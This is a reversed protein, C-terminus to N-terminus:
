LEIVKSYESDKLDIAVSEFITFLDKYKIYGVTSMHVGWKTVYDANHQKTFQINQM